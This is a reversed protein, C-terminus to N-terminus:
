LKFIAKLSERVNARAAKAAEPNYGIHPGREVCPDAYTFPQGTPASVIQGNTTETLVCKRVTTANALPMPKPPSLPSDFTHPANKYITIQADRGAAKLKETYAICRDASTYDDIDGHHIRVPALRVKTDDIFTTTCDPYFPLYAAFELGSENWMTNFRDLSAYLATRGGRSFGILAIRSTDVRPHNRVMGLARYADLAMNLVGLQSQDELTNSIGRATFSDILLTSVGIEAFDRAWLDNAGTIGASGHLLM